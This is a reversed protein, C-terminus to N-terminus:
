LVVRTARVPLDSLTSNPCKVRSGLKFVGKSILYDHPNGDEVSGKLKNKVHGASLERDPEVDAARIEKGPRGGNMHELLNLLNENRLVVPNGQLKKYIEKAMIGSPSLQPKWGKDTLWAFFIEESSPIDKTETFSHRVLKVLGHRGVRWERSSGIGSIAHAFNRGSPKPFVEALLEDTGYLRFAVENACRPQHHNASKLAFSPLLARFRVRLDAVEFSEEPDGYVDDPVADDQARAWEDWVRPYWPQLLIFPEDPSDKPKGGIELSRAYRRMDELACSRGHVFHISSGMSPDRSVAQRLKGLSGSVFSRLHLNDQLQKPVPLVHRGTARLNWFDVVDGVKTADLYYLYASRRSRHYPSRLRLSYQSIRRPFFVDEAMIESLNEASADLTVIDLPESYDELLPAVASPIEGLWSAWFLSLAQPIRALIVKKPYKPKFRFHKDFIDNLLEFIGIGFQPTHGAGPAKWVDHPKIIRLGTDSVFGPVARSFQVLIDPDFAELYGLIVDRARLATRSKEQWNSPM